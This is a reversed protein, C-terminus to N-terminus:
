VMVLDPVPAAGATMNGPSAPYAGGGGQWGPLELPESATRMTRAAPLNAADSLATNGQMMSNWINGGGMEQFARAALPDVTGLLAAYQNAAGLAAQKQQLQLGGRGLAFQNMAEQNRQAAQLQAIYQQSAVSQGTNAYEGAARIRALEQQALAAAPTIDDINTNVNTFGGQRIETNSTNAPRPAATSGGGGGGSSPTAAKAPWLPDWQGTTSNWQYTNGTADTRTTPAATGTIGGPYLRGSADTPKGFNPNSPDMVTYGSPSNPDKSIDWPLGTIPSIGIDGPSGEYVAGPKPAPPPEKPIIQGTAPNYYSTSGDANTITLWTNLSPSSGGGSSEGLPDAM